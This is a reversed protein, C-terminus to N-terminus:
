YIIGYITVFTTVVMVFVGGKVMLTGMISSGNEETSEILLM